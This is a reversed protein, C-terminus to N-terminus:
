EQYARAWVRGAGGARGPGASTFFGGYGGGGGGGPASGATNEGGGAGGTYTVGNYTFPAATLGQANGYGNRPQGGAGTALVSLSPSYVLSNGGAGGASERGPSQAGAAGVTVQLQTTQFPIDVGRRLTIADWSGANGGLGDQGNGGNGGYGGSGGGILVFDIADCWRPITYQGTATIALTTEATPRFSAGFLGPRGVGYSVMTVLATKGLGLAQVGAGASAFDLAQIVGLAFTQTAPATSSLQLTGVRALGLAQVGAGAAPTLALGVVRVLALAQVAPATNALALKAIKQLTLLQTTTATNTFVATAIKRLTLSQTAAALQALALRKIALLTVSQVPDAISRTDITLLAWWGIETPAEDPETTTEFWGPARVLAPAPADDFWGAM